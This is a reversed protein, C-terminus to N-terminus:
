WRPEERQPEQPRPKERQGFHRANVGMPVEAEGAVLLEERQNRCTFDCHLRISGNAAEERRVIRGGVSVTDGPRAPVRFRANLRGGELWCRGFSRRMMQSVFALLLMGHAVTGGLPSRRAFAEDVHIPNYDGSAAAYLNIRRQSISRRIEALRDGEQWHKLPHM